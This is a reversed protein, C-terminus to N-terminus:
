NKRKFWGWIEFNFQQAKVGLIIFARGKGRGERVEQTCFCSFTSCSLLFSIICFWVFTSGFWFKLIIKRTRMLKRSFIGFGSRKWLVIKLTINIFVTIKGLLECRAQTIRFAAPMLHAMPGYDWCHYKDNTWCSVEFQCFKWERCVRVCVTHGCSPFEGLCCILQIGSKMEFGVESNGHHMSGELRGDLFWHPSM